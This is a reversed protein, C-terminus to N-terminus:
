YYVLDPPLDPRAPAPALRASNRSEAHSSMVGVNSSELFDQALRSAQLLDAKMSRCFLAAVWVYWSRPFFKALAILSPSGFNELTEFFEEQYVADPDRPAPGKFPGRALAVGGMLVRM